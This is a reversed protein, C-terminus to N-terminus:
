SRDSRLPTPASRDPGHCGPTRREQQEDIRAFADVERGECVALDGGIHDALLRLAAEVRDINEQTATMGERFCWYLHLGHGSAIIFTPALRLTGLRQIIEAPAQEVNKYDIDAHLCTLESVTAKSRQTQDPRITSVCFFLGRNPQNRKAVFTQIVSKDRTLVKREGPETPDDQENPLSSLFIPHQTGARFFEELFNAAIEGKSPPQPPEQIPRAGRPSAAIGLPEPVVDNTKGARKVRDAM